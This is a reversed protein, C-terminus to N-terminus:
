EGPSQAPASGAADPASRVATVFLRDPTRRGVGPGAEIDAFGAATLRRSLEPRTWPRMAFTFTSREAPRDPRHLDYEELVNILGAHWTATSTFDLRAGEGLDVSRRHPVGDARERSGDAERVDLLLVGGARLVAAFSALAADREADTTMDNLVGRCAVADYVPGADLACLDVLMARATPCRRAAQALLDSSADALDVRHGKAILAAAHRGTGCGADLIFARQHVGVVAGRTLRDHVADAWPEAPDDVLLDYADAHDAYFPRARSVRASLSAM